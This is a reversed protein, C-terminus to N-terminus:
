YITLKMKNFLLKKNYNIQIPIYVFNICLISKLSSVSVWCFPFCFIYWVTKVIGFILIMCLPLISVGLVCLCSQESEQSPVPMTPCITRFHIVYKLKGNYIEWTKITRVQGGRYILHLHWLKYVARCCTHWIKTEWQMNGM